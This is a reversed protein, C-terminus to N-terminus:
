IFDGEILHGPVKVPLGHDHLVGDTEVGVMLQFPREQFRSGEGQLHDIGHTHHGIYMQNYRFEPRRITGLELCSKIQIRGAIGHPLFDGQFIVGDVHRQIGLHDM